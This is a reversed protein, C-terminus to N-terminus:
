LLIAFIPLTKPESLDDMTAVIASWEKKTAEKWTKKVQLKYKKKRKHPNGLVKVNM